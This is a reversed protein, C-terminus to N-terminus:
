LAKVLDSLKELHDQEQAILADVTKRDYEPVVTKMKTYFLISDKEFGIGTETAEKDTKTKQAIEKGKNKQTFIYDGALAKMYSFYEGPYAEPPEYKQVSNLIKEFTAIHKEEEGALFKFIDKVRSNKSRNTLTDYFDKGNKEIQIGLEVIESGGFINAM